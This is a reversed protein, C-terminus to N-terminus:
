ESQIQSTNNKNRYEKVKNSFEENDAFLMAIVVGAVLLAIVITIIWGLPTKGSQNKM